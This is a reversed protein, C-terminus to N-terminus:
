PCPRTTPTTPLFIWLRGNIKGRGEGGEVGVVGKAMYGSQSRRHLDMNAIGSHPIPKNVSMPEAYKRDRRGPSSPMYRARVPWLSLPVHDFIIPNQSPTTVGQIHLLLSDAHMPFHNSGEGRLEPNVFVQHLVHHVHNDVRHVECTTGLGERRSAARRSFGSPCSALCPQWVDFAHVFLM